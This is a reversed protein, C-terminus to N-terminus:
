FSSPFTGFSRIERLSLLVDFGSLSALALDLIVLAYSKSNLLILADSGNTASEIALRYPLVAAEVLHPIDPDDDVVLIHPDPPTVSRPRRSLRSGTAVSGASEAYTATM